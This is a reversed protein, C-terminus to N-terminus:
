GRCCQLRVAEVFNRMLVAVTLPGVGGPVPTIYSARRSAGQFEVDGVISAGKKNIGVDVVIAGEKIWDGKVLGAQGAAVVLVEAGRVHGRLREAEFTGIHCTTVTAMKNLLMLGLPKGIIESHGVVVAEKGYLDIGTSAIIEMVAAPTCPLIAARDLLINGLNEPHMGEIDKKPLISQIIKRHDMSGPLPVQVIIGGVSVDSNLSQILSVLGAQSADEKLNYLQYRIGLDQAAKRQARTYVECSSDEGVKISALILERCSRQKLDEIDKRLKEKIAEALPKGELLKM